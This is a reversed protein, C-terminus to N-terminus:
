VSHQYLVAKLQVLQSQTVFRCGIGISIFCFWHFCIKARETVDMSRNTQFSDNFIFACSLM